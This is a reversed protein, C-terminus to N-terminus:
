GFTKLILFSANINIDSMPMSRKLFASDDFFIDLKIKDFGLLSTQFHTVWPFTNLFTYFRKWTSTHEAVYINVGPPSITLFILWKFKTLIMTFILCQASIISWNRTTKNGIRKLKISVEGWGSVGEDTELKLVVSVLAAGREIGGGKIMEHGKSFYM